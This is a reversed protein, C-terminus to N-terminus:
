FALNKSYLKQYKRIVNQSKEMDIRWKSNTSFCVQDSRALTQKQFAKIQEIRGKLAPQEHDQIQKFIVKSQSEVSRQLTINQWLQENKNKPSFFKALTDSPAYNSSIKLPALRAKSSLM